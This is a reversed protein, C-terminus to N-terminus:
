VKSNVWVPGFSRECPLFLKLTPGAVRKMETGLNVFKQSYLGHDSM